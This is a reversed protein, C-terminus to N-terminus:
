NSNHSIKILGTQDKKICHWTHHLLLQVLKFKLIANKSHYISWWLCWWIVQALISRSRHFHIWCMVIVDYHAYHRRLDGAERNNVWGNICACILSFMLARRWQGKHPSNVPSRHIGWVSPWDCPFHKWKIVDDHNSISKSKFVKLGRTGLRHSLLKLFTTIWIIVSSIAEVHICRGVGWQQYTLM